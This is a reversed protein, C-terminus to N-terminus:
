KPTLASNSTEFQTSFPCSYNIDLNPSHLSFRHIVLCQQQVQSPCRATGLFNTAVPLNTAAILYIRRQYWSSSSINKNISAGGPATLPRGRESCIVLFPIAWRWRWRPGKSVEGPGRGSPGLGGGRESIEKGVRQVRLSARRCNMYGNLFIYWPNEVTGDDAMWFRGSTSSCGPLRSFEYLTRDENKSTALYSICVHLHVAQRSRLILHEPSCGHRYQVFRFKSHTTGSFLLRL